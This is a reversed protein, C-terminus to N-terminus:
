CDCTLAEKKGQRRVRREAAREIFLMRRRATKSRSSTALLKVRQDKHQAKTGVQM